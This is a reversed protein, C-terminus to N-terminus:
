LLDRLEVSSGVDEPEVLPTTGLLMSSGWFLLTAMLFLGFDLLTTVTDAVSIFFPNGALPLRLWDISFCPPRNTWDVLNDNDDEEEEEETWLGCEFCLFFVYVKESKASKKGNM